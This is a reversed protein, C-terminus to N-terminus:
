LPAIRPAVHQVFLYAAVGLAVMWFCIQITMSLVARPMDRMREVRVAKYAISIFLAFPFLLLYWHQHLDLPDLFPRYNGLTAVVGAGVLVPFAGPITTM